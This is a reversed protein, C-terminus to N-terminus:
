LVSVKPKASYKSVEEVAKAVKFMVEEGLPPACVQVNIPLSNGDVGVPVSTAYADVLNTPIVCLDNLYM